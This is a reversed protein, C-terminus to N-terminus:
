LISTTASMLILTAASRCFRMTARSVATSSQVAPSTSTNNKIEGGTIVTTGYSLLNYIAGGVNSSCDKITGGSMKLTADRVYFAGGGYGTENSITKCNEFLGSKFDFEAGNCM